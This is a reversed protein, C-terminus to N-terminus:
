MNVVRHLYKFQMNEVPQSHHKIVKNEVWQLAQAHKAPLGRGSRGVPSFFFTASFFIFNGVRADPLFARM